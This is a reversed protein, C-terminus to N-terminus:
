FPKYVAMYAAIIGLVLTLWWIAKSMGPKRAIVAILGGFALWILVKVIIWGPWPWHIGLRALLGFGGLLVLFLGVGHTIASAKRGPSQKDGGVLANLLLGGFALYVMFVGILHILKYVQYDLM